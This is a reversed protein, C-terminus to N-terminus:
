RAGHQVRAKEPTKVAALAKATQEGYWVDWAARPVHWRGGIKIVPMMGAAMMDYIYERRVHLLRACDMPTLFDM